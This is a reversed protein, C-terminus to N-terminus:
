AQEEQQKIADEFDPIEFDPKKPYNLNKPPNKPLPSKKLSYWVIAWAISACFAFQFITLLLDFVFDNISLYILFKVYSIAFSNKLIIVICILQLVWEVCLFSIWDVFFDVISRILLMFNLLLGVWIIFILWLTTTIPELLDGFMDLFAKIVKQVETLVPELFSKIEGIFPKIFRKIADIIGRIKDGLAQLKDGLAQLIDELSKGKPKEKPTEGPDPTSEPTEGPDPTSEPTEEPDPTSEPTEKPDPTSEPTEKPDPTSESNDIGEPLEELIADSLLTLIDNFMEILQYIDYYDCAVIITSLSVIIKIITIVNWM